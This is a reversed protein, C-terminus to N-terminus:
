GKIKSCNKTLSKQYIQLALFYSIALGIFFLDFGIFLWDNHKISQLLGKNTTFANLMPTCFAVIATSALLGRWAVTPRVCFAFLTAILWVIFFGHIEWNARNALDTALLRNFWFFSLMALPLGAILSINSRQLVFFGFHQRNALNQRKVTWLILGTAVMATGLMGSLFYLWRLLPNAFKGKHLGVLLRNATAGSVNPTHKELLKGTTGDYIHFESLLAIQHMPKADIIVQSKDTNPLNVSVSTIRYHPNQWTKESQSILKGIDVMPAPKATTAVEPKVPRFSYIQQYVTQSDINAFREAYPMYMAILTVLGTFTIMLHFPLPLVSVLNHADLWSRQGKKLRLTFLDSFIKKHVIIGTILGILMMMSFFGVLWRATRPSLYHLDFHMRYFFEGGKSDKIETIEQQQQDFFKPKGFRDDANKVYQQTLPYRETAPYIYWSQANPYHRQLSSIAHSIAQNDNSLSQYPLEPKTWISIEDKFFSVTGMLFVVFLLWGALVGFWTHVSAMHQRYGKKNSKENSKHSSKHHTKSNKQLIQYSFVALIVATFAVISAIQGWFIASLPQIPLYIFGIDVLVAVGYGGFVALLIQCLLRLYFSTPRSKKM